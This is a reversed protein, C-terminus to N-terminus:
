FSWVPLPPYQEFQSTTSGAQGRHSDHSNTESVTISVDGVSKPLDRLGRRTAKPDASNELLAVQASCVERVFQRFVSVEPPMETGTELQRIAMWDTDSLISKAENKLQKILGARIREMDQDWEDQPTNDPIELIGLEAKQEPTSNRLWEKPYQLGKHTFPRDLKLRNGELVFM